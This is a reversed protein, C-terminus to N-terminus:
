NAAEDLVLFSCLRGQKIKIVKLFSFEPKNRGSTNRMYTDRHTMSIKREGAANYLNLRNVFLHIVCLLYRPLSSLNWIFM